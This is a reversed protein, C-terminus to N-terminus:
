FQQNCEVFDVLLSDASVDLDQYRPVNKQDFISLRDDNVIVLRQELVKFVESHVKHFAWGCHDFDVLVVFVKEVFLDAGKLLVQDLLILFHRMDNIKRELERMKYLKVESVILFCLGIILRLM